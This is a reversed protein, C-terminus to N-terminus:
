EVKIKMPIIVLLILFVFAIFVPSCGKINMCFKSREKLKDRTKELDKLENQLQELEKKREKLTEKQTETEAEAKQNKRPSASSPEM